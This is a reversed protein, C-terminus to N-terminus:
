GVRRGSLDLVGAHAQQTLDFKAVFADQPGYIVGAYASGTLPFDQSRTTGIVYILGAADVDIGYAIDIDSGGFYTSYVMQDPGSQSPDFKLVFADTGAGGALGNQFAFGGLPFNASTTSGALYIVGNGDLAMANPTDVGSGGIYTLYVLSSSSDGKPNFKALFINTGGGWTGQFADGTATLDGTSTYGAVWVMGSKDVKVATIADNGTGGLLSSYVIVPDITLPRAHDYADLEVGAVDAALLKYHGEVRQRRGSATEQYIVPKKQVMAADGSDLLLDGGANLRLHGAGRFKLRIKRADAGPRLALDYELRSANGYYILDIGPYVDAYRVRTYQAVGTRWQDRASGVFYNARVGLPDLGEIRANPNSHVLSIGVSRNGTSLVAEQSTLLLRSEGTRAYFKVRPNWQGTNPEFRIPLSRMMERTKVTEPAAGGAAWAAVGACLAFCSFLRVSM